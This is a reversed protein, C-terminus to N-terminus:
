SLPTCQQKIYAVCENQAITTQPIDKRLCKVTITSTQHEQTGLILALLAGSKDAKKFQNKLNGGGCHQILRLGPLQKRLSHAM